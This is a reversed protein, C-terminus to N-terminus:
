TNDTLAEVRKDGYEKLSTRLLKRAEDMELTDDLYNKRGGYSLSKLLSEVYEEILPDPM